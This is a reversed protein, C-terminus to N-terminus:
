RWRSSTRCPKRGQRTAVAAFAAVGAGRGSGRRAVATYERGPRASIVPSAGGAPAADRGKPHRAGPSLKWPERAVEVDALLVPGVLLKQAIPDPLRRLLGAPGAEVASAPRSRTITRSCPFSRHLRTSRSGRPSGRSPPVVRAREFCRPRDVGGGQRLGVTRAITRPTLRRGIEQM